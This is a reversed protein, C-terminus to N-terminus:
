SSGSFQCFCCSSKQGRDIGSTKCWLPVDCMQTDTMASLTSGKRRCRMFAQCPSLYTKSDNDKNSHFM